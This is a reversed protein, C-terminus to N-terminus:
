LTKSKAWRIGDNSSSRIADRKMKEKSDSSMKYYKKILYNIDYDDFKKFFMSWIKEAKEIFDLEYEKKIFRQEVSTKCYNVFKKLETSFFPMFLEPIYEYSEIYEDIKELSLLDDINFELEYETTITFYSNLKILHSKMYEIYTLDGIHHINDYAYVASEFYSKALQKHLDKTLSKANTKQDKLEDNFLNQQSELQVNFEKKIKSSYKINGYVYFGSTITILGVIMAIFITYSCQIKDFSSSYYNQVKEMEKATAFKDSLFKSNLSDISNETEKQKKYLESVAIKLSDTKAYCMFFAILIAFIPLKKM